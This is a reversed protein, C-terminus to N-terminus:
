DKQYTRGEACEPFLESALPEDLPDGARATFGDTWSARGLKAQWHEGDLSIIAVVRCAVLDGAMLEWSAKTGQSHVACDNSTNSFKEVGSTYEYM